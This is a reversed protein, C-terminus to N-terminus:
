ENVDGGKENEQNSISSVPFKGALVGDVFGSVSGYFSKADDSLKSYVSEIYKARDFAEALSRPASAVDTYMAQVRQLAQLDGNRYRSIIRKISCEEKYSQIIAYFDEEGVKKLYRCDGKEYEPAFVPCKGDGTPSYFRSHSSFSNRVIPM